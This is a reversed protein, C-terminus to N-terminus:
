RACEEKVRDDHLVGDILCGVRENDDLEASPEADLEVHPRPLQNENKNMM